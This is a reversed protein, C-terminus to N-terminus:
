LFQERKKDLIEMFVNKKEWYKSLDGKKQREPATMQGQTMVCKM